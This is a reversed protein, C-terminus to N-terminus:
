PLDAVQYDARSSPGFFKYALFGAAGIIVVGVALGIGVGKGVGSNATFGKGGAPNVTPHPLASRSQTPWPPPSQWPSMTPLPFYYEEIEIALCMGVLGQRQPRCVTRLISTAGEHDTTHDETQNRVFSVPWHECPLSANGCIIEHSFQRFWDPHGAIFNRESAGRHLL